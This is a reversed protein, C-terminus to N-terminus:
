ELSLLLLWDIDQVWPLFPRMYQQDARGDRGRYSEQQASLDGHVSGCLLWLQKCVFNPNTVCSKACDQPTTIDDYVLDDHSQIESAAIFNFQAPIFYLIFVLVFHM